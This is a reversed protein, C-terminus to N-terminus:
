ENLYDMISHRLLDFDINQICHPEKAKCFGGICSMEMNKPYLTRCIGGWPGFRTQSFSNEVPLKASHAVIQILRSGLSAGIHKMSSDLCISFRARQTLLGSEILSTKGVLNHATLSLCIQDAVNTYEAGGLFIIPMEATQGVVQCVEVWKSVSLQNVANTSGLCIVVFDKRIDLSSLIKRVNERNEIIPWVETRRDDTDLELYKCIELTNEVEHSISNKFIIHTFFSDFGKNKDAKLGTSSESFALRYTANLNVSMQTGGYWDVDWRALISLDFNGFRRKLTEAITIISTDPTLISMGGIQWDLYPCQETIGLSHNATVLVITALPYKKRLSRFLPTILILDGIGDPKIIAIKAREGLVIKNLADDNLKTTYPPLPVPVSKFKSSIINGSTSINVESFQPVHYHRSPIDHIINIYNSFTSWRDNILNIHHHYMSNKILLMDMALLEGGDSFGDHASKHPLILFGFREALAKKIEYSDSSIVLPYKIRPLIYEEVMRNLINMKEIADLRSVEGHQPYGSRVSLVEYESCEILKRFKNETITRFNFFKGVFSKTEVPISSRDWSGVNTSIYLEQTDSSLFNNLDNVLNGHDKIEPAFYEKAGNLKNGRGVNFVQKDNIIFQSLQSSSIDIKLDVQRGQLIEHLYCSGRIFHGIGPSREIWRHSAKYVHIIKKM